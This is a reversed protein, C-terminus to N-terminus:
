IKKLYYRVMSKGYNWGGLRFQSYIRKLLYFAFGAYYFPIQLLTVWRNKSAPYNYKRLERRCIWEIVGVKSSTLQSKWKELSVTAIGGEKNQGVESSNTRGPTLMDESFEIELEESLRELTKRPEQVLEEYRVEVGVGYKEKAALWKRVESRWALCDAVLNSGIIM